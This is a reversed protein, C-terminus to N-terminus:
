QVCGKRANLAYKKLVFAPDPHLELYRDITEAVRKPSHRQVHGLGHLASYQCMASDISLIEEISALKAEVLPAEEPTQPTDSVPFIEWFMYCVCYLPRTGGFDVGDACRAAFFKRALDVTSRILGLRRELPVTESLADRVYDESIVFWLSRELQKDSFRALHRDANKFTETIHEAKLLHDDGWFGSGPQREWDDPHDFAHALWQDFSLGKIIPM